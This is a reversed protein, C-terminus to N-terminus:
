AAKEIDNYRRQEAIVSFSRGEAELMAEGGTV